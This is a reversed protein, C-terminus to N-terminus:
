GRRYVIAATSMWAESTPDAPERQLYCAHQDFAVVQVTAVFAGEKERKAKRQEIAAQIHGSQGSVVTYIDPSSLEVLM